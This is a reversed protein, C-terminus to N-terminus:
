VIRSSFNFEKDKAQIESYNNYLVIVLYYGPCSLTVWTGPMNLWHGTKGM